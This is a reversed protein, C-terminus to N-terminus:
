SGLGPHAKKACRWNYKCILKRPKHERGLIDCRGNRLDKDSVVAIGKSPCSLLQGAWLRGNFQRQSANIARSAGFAVERVWADSVAALLSHSAAWDGETPVPTTILITNIRRLVREEAVADLGRLQLTNCIMGVARNTHGRRTCATIPM